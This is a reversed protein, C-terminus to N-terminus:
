GQAPVGIRTDAALFDGVRRALDSREAPTTDDLPLYVLRAMMRQADSMGTAPPLAFLSTAGRTADYGHRLLYWVLREPESCQVPLVWHVHPEAEAAPVIGAPLQSVLSRGAEIRSAIRRRDHGRVRRHMLALLAHGPRHRLQALLDGSGFGRVSAAIIAEHSRGAWRCAAAFLSYVPRRNLMKLVMYFVVRRLFARRSQLPYAAQRRGLTARSAADRFVLIGGGLATATKIPGFSFMALDTGAHGRYGDAAYAQACDEVLLIGHRKAFAAIPAMPVRAGFLHAVVLVRSRPTVARELADLRPACTAPDIDVPVAKLGSLEIIAVMDRITVASVLVESGEPLALAQLYLDFGSRVSLTALVHGPPGWGAELRAAADGRGPWISRVCAYGLDRWGIDLVKRPIM